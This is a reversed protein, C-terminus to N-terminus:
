QVFRRKAEDFAGIAEQKKFYKPASPHTWYCFTIADFTKLKPEVHIRLQRGLVIVIDPALDTLVHKLAQQSREWMEKTPRIRPEGGVIVQIYNYFAVNQWFVQKDDPSMWVYSKGSLIKAVITFLRTKGGGGIACGRIVEETFTQLEQGNGYHSEGLVLIKPKSSKYNEGVWPKFYPEIM